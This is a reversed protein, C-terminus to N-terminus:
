AIGLKAYYHTYSYNDQIKKKAKMMYPKREEPHELFYDILRKYEEKNPARLVEDESFFESIIPVDDCIAFGGSMIVNFIRDNLMTGPIQTFNTVKNKQFDGHLNPSVIASRYYDKAEQFPCFIKTVNAYDLWDQSREPYGAGIFVANPLGGVERGETNCTECYGHPLYSIPKGLQKEAERVCDGQWQTFFVDAYQILGIPPMAYRSDPYMHGLWCMKLGQFARLKDEIHNYWESQYIIAETGEPIDDTLNILTATHGLAELAHKHHALVISGGNNDELTKNHVFIAFNM